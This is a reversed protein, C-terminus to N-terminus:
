TQRFIEACEISRPEGILIDRQNVFSSCLLMAPLKHTCDDQVSVNVRIDRSSHRDKPILFFLSEKSEPISITSCTPLCYHCLSNSSTFNPLLRGQIDYLILGKPHCASM